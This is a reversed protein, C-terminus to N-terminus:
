SSAKSRATACTARACPSPRRVRRGRLSTRGLRRGRHEAGRLPAQDESARRLVGGRRRPPRPTGRARPRADARGAGQRHHRGGDPDHHEVVVDARSLAGDHRQRGPHHRQPRPVLRRQGSRAPRHAGQLRRPRGRAHAFQRGVQARGLLGLSRHDDRREQDHGQGQDAGARGQARRRRRDGVGGRLRRRSAARGRQPMQARDRRLHDRHRLPHDDRGYKDFLEDMRKAALRCAAMQSKM